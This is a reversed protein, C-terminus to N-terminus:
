SQSRVNRSEEVGYSELLWPEESTSNEFELDIEFMQNDDRKELLEETYIDVKNILGDIYESIVLKPNFNSNKM